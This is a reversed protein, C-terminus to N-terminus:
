RAPTQHIDATNEVELTIGQNEPQLVIKGLVEFSRAPDINAPFDFGTKVRVPDGVWGVGENTHSYDVLFEFSSGEDGRNLGWAIMGNWVVYCDQYLYSEQVVEAYTFNDRINAFDPKKTFSKLILAKNKVVASVNSELLRNIYYKAKEDHYSNFAARADNFTEEIQKQTFDYRYGSGSEPPAALEEPTLPTAIEMGPRQPRPRNKVFWFVGGGALAVCLLIMVTIFVGRWRRRGGPIPPYLSRARGSEIRAALEERGGSKRILDLARKAIRNKGDIDQIDLYIDVAKETDGRKLFFLALGLLPGTERFKINKARNFYTFAGGFDGAYLCALGLIHYYPFSDQYRVAELELTKIAKGYKGRRTLNLANNLVPDKLM